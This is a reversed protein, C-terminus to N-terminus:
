KCQEEAIDKFDPWGFEGNTDIGIQVMDCYHALQVDFENEASLNISGIFGTWIMGLGLFMLGVLLTNNM